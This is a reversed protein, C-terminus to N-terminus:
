FLLGIAVGAALAVSVCLGLVMGSPEIREVTRFRDPSHEGVDEPNRAAMRKCDRRMAETMLGPEVKGDRGVCYFRYEWRDPSGGWSRAYNPAADGAYITSRIKDTM